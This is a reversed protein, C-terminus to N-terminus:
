NPTILVNTHLKTAKSRSLMMEGTVADGNNKKVDHMQAYISHDQQLGSLLGAIASTRKDLRVSSQFRMTVRDGRGISVSEVITSSIANGVTEAVM